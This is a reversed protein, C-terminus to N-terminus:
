SSVFFFIDSPEMKQFISPHSFFKEALKRQVDQSKSVIKTKLMDMVQKPNLQSEQSMLLGLITPHDQENDGKQLKAVLADISLDELKPPKRKVEANVPQLHPKGEMLGPFYLGMPFIM